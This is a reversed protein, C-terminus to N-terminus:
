LMTISYFANKLVGLCFSSQIPIYGTRKFNGDPDEVNKVIGQHNIITKCFILPSTPFSGSFKKGKFIKGLISKPQSIEDFDDSQKQGSQANILLSWALSNM